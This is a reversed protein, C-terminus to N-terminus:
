NRKIAYKIENDIELNSKRWFKIEQYKRLKELSLKNNTELDKIENPSKTAHKSSFITIRILISGM